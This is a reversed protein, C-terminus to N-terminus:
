IERAESILTDWTGFNPIEDHLFNEWQKMDVSVVASAYNVLKLANTMEIIAAQLRKQADRENALQDDSMSSRAKYAGLSIVDWLDLKNM